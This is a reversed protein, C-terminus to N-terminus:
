LCLFLKGVELTTCVGKTMILKVLLHVLEWAAFSFSTVFCCQIHQPNGFPLASFLLRVLQGMPWLSGVRFDRAVRFVVSRQECAEAVAKFLLRTVGFLALTYMMVFINMSKMMMTGCAPFASSRANDWRHLHYGLLRMWMVRLLILANNSVSLSALIVRVTYSLWTTTAHRQIEDGLKLCPTFINGFYVITVVQIMLFRNADKSKAIIKLPLALSAGDKRFGISSRVPTTCEAGRREVYWSNCVISLM